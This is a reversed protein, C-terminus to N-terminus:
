IPLIFYKSNNLIFKKKGTYATKPSLWDENEELIDKIWRPCKKLHTLLSRIIKMRDALNYKEDPFLFHRMDITTKHYMNYKDRLDAIIELM